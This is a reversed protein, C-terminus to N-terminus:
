LGARTPTGSGRGGRVCLVKRWASKDAGSITFVDLFVTVVLSPDGEEENATWFFTGQLNEFPAGEPLSPSSRSPDVLTLLEEVTPVRWGMRGGTNRLACARLTARWDGILTAQKEWVLGTEKDLVAKDDFAKLVKFRGPGEIKKDWAPPAAKSVAASSALAAVLVLSAILKPM